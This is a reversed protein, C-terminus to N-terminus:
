VEIIEQMTKEIRRKVKKTILAGTLTLFFILVGILIVIDGAYVGADAKNTLLYRGLFVVLLSYAIVWWKLRKIALPKIALRLIFLFFLVM